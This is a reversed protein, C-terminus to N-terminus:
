SGRRRGAPYGARLSRARKALALESAAMRRGVGEWWGEQLGQREALVERRHRRHHLAKAGHVVVAQLLRQGPPPCLPAPASTGGDRVPDPHVVLHWGPGGMM